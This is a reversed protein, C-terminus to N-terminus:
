TRQVIRASEWTSNTPHTTPKSRKASELFLILLHRSLRMWGPRLLQALQQMCEPVPLDEQESAAPVYFYAVARRAFRSEAPVMLLGLWSIECVKGVQLRHGCPLTCAAQSVFAM